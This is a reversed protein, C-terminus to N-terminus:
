RAAGLFPVAEALWFGIAHMAAYALYGFILVGFYKRDNTRHFSCAGSARIIWLGIVFVLGGLLYQYFFPTWHGDLGLVAVVGRPIAWCLLIVAPVAVLAAWPRSPTTEHAM